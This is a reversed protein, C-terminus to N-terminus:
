GKVGSVVLGEMLARQSLFYIALVWALTSLGLPMAVLAIPLAAILPGLYPIFNAVGAQLRVAGPNERGIDGMIFRVSGEVLNFSVSANAADKANYSYAVIRFVSNEGIITVQGDPHALVLQAGPGTMITSGAQLANGGRAPDGTAGDVGKVIRVQGQPQAMVAAFPVSESQALVGPASACALVAFLVAVLRTKTPM